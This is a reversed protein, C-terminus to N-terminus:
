EAGGALRFWASGRHRRLRRRRGVVGLQAEHGGESQSSKAGFAVGATAAFRDVARDPQIDLESIDAARTEPPIFALLLRVSRQYSETTTPALTLTAIYRDYAEALDGLAPSYQQRRGKTNTDL